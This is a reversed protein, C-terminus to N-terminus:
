RYWVATNGTPTGSNLGVDLQTLEASLSKHGNMTFTQSSNKSGLTGSLVWTNSSADILCMTVHGQLVTTGKNANTHFETTNQNGSSGNNGFRSSVSSYGSAEIGGADGIRIRVNNSSTTWQNFLVRIQTVGAPISGWNNNGTQQALMTWGGGSPEEFTPASTAGNSQLVEGDAGLAVEQVEGANDVYIVSDPTGVLDLVTSPPPAQPTSFGQSM